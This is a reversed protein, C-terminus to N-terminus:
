SMVFLRAMVCEGVGVTMNPLSLATTRTVSM